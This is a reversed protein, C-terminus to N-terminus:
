TPVGSQGSAAIEGGLEAGARHQEGLDGAAVGEVLGAAARPPREGAAKGVGRDRGGAERRRHLEAGVVGDVGPEGFVVGAREESGSRRPTTAPPAAASGASSQSAVGSSAM